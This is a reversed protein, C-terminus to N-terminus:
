SGGIPRSFGARGSCSRKAKKKGQEESDLRYIWRSHSRDQAKLENAVVARALDNASIARDTSASQSFAAGIASVAILGTLACRGLFCLSMVEGAKRTTCEHLEIFIDMGPNRKWTAATDLMGSV